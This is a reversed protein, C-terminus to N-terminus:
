HAFPSVFIIDLRAVHVHNFEVQVLKIQKHECIFENSNRSFRRVRSHSFSFSYVSPSFDAVIVDRNDGSISSVCVCVGVWVTLTFSLCQGIHFQFYTFMGVTKRELLIKPSGNFKMTQELELYEYGREGEMTDIRERERDARTKKNTDTKHTKNVNLCNLYKIQHVSILFDRVFSFFILVFCFSARSHLVCCIKSHEIRMLLHKRESRQGFECANTTQTRVLYGTALPSFFRM